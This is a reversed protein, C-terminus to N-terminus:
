ALNVALLALVVLLVGGLVSLAYSRVYGTQLRRLQGGLAAVGLAGNEVAGDVGRDDLRTLGRAAAHGPRIVLGENIADGYLDARAARTAARHVDDATAAVVTGLVAESAPNRVTIPEGSGECWGDVSIKGHWRTDELITM